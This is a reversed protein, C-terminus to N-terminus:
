REQIGTEAPASSDAPQVKAARANKQRRLFEDIAQYTRMCFDWTRSLTKWSRFARQLWYAPSLLLKLRYVGEMMDKERNQIDAALQKRASRLEKLSTIESYDMKKDHKM